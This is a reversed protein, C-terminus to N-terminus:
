FMAARIEFQSNSHQKVVENKITVDICWGHPHHISELPPIMASVSFIV